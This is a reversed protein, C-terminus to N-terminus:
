GDDLLLVFAGDGAGFDLLSSPRHKAVLEAAHRLRRIHAYRVIAHRSAYTQGAYADLLETDAENVRWWRRSSRKSSSRSAHGVRSPSSIRGGRDDWRRQVIAM